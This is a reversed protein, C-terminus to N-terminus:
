PGPKRRLLILCDAVPRPKGDSPSNMVQGNLWFTSSGGGDMNVAETCGLKHMFVAAENFNMGVSLKEQRGDVVVFFLSKDNFGVLTRPARGAPSSTPTPPPKGSELLQPEASIATMVDSMDRDFATTLELVDGVRVAPVSSEAKRSISLVLSDPAITADGALSVKAVKARYTKGARLPLWANGDTPTLVFERVESTGTSAGFRPTFLVTPASRVGSQFDSTPGNLAFTSKGGGPWSVRFDAKPRRISPRGERDFCIASIKPCRLLEREVISLGQPVGFFRPEKSIEFFGGNVAAIPVGREKPIAAVMEPVTQKGKIALGVSATVHLDQQSRSIELVHISLPGSPDSIHRYQVGPGLASADQKAADAAAPGAIGPLVTLLCCAFWVNPTKRRKQSCFTM